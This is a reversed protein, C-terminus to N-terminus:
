APRWSIRSRRRAHADTRVAYVHSRRNLSSRSAPGESRLEGGSCEGDLRCSSFASMTRSSLRLFRIVAAFIAPTFGPRMPRGSCRTWSSRTDGHGPFHKACSALAVARRSDEARGPTRGRRWDVVRRAYTSTSLRCFRAADTANEIRAQAPAGPVADDHLADEGAIAGGALVAARISRHSSRRSTGGGCRRGAVRGASRCGCLSWVSAAAGERRHLLPARQM